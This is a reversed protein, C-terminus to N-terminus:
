DVAANASLSRNELNDLPSQLEDLKYQMVHTYIETTKVDAHGLLTQLTRINVGNELTHTAFRHRLTHCGARKLIDPLYVRGFGEKKDQKHLQVVDCIHSKLIKSIHQPLLTVRGKGGKAGRVFIKHQGFDVDQIGLRICEMLRLGSGYLLKAMLAHTGTMRALLRQVEEQTLVTPPKAQCKARIHGIKGKLPLDLVSRCLFVLANLAQKQTSVSVKSKTALSSLFREM